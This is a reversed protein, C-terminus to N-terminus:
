IGNFFSRGLDCHHAMSPHSQLKLAPDTKDDRSHNKLSDSLIHTNTGLIEDQNNPCYYENIVLQSKGFNGQDHANLIGSLSKQNRYNWQSLM